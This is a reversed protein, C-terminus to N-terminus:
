FARAKSMRHVNFQQGVQISKTDPEAIQQPSPHLVEHLLGAKMKLQGVMLFLLLNVLTLPLGEPEPPLPSQPHEQKQSTPVLWPKLVQLNQLYIQEWKNTSRM